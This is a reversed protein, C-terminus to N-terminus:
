QLAGYPFASDNGKRIVASFTFLGFPNNFRMLQRKYVDEYISELIMRVVEQVLKDDGSPIGLPRKKSSNKRDRICM